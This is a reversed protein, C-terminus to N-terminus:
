PPFVLESDFESTGEEMFLTVLRGLTHQKGEPDCAPSFEGGLADMLLATRRRSEQVAKLRM